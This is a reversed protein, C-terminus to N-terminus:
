LRSFTASFSRYEDFNEYFSRLVMYLTYVLFYFIVCLFYFTFHIHKLFLIYFTFHICIIRFLVLPRQLFYDIPCEQLAVKYSMKLYLRSSRKGVVLAKRRSESISGVSLTDNNKDFNVITQLSIHM